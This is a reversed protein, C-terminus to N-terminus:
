MPTIQQLSRVFKLLRTFIEPCQILLSLSTSALFIIVMNLDQFGQKEFFFAKEVFVTHIVIFKSHVM